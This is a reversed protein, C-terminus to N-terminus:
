RETDTRSAKAAACWARHRRDCEEINRMATELDTGCGCVAMQHVADGGRKAFSDYQVISVNRDGLDAFYKQAYGPADGHELRKLCARPVGKPCSWPPVGGETVYAGEKTLDPLVIRDLEITTGRDLRERVAANLNVVDDNTAVPVALILHVYGGLARMASRLIPREQTELVAACDALVQTAPLWAALAEAVADTSLRKEEGSRSEKIGNRLDACLMLYAFRNGGGDSGEPVVGSQIGLRAEPAGFQVESRWTEPSTQAVCERVVKRLREKGAKPMRGYCRFAHRVIVGSSDGSRATLADHQVIRLGEKCLRECLEALFGAVPEQDFTVHLHGLLQMEPPEDFLVFPDRGVPCILTHKGQQPNAELERFQEFGAAPDLPHKREQLLWEQFVPTAEYYFVAFGSNGARRICGARWNYQPKRGDGEPAMAVFGRDVEHFWRLLRSLYGPRDWGATVVIGRETMRM